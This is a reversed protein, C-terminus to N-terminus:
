LIYGDKSCTAFMSGCQAFSVHLVQHSHDRLVETAEIVPSHALQTIDSGNESVPSHALQTMYSGNESVPSHALQTMGSGNVRVPSHAVQTM